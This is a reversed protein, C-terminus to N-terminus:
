NLIQKPIKFLVIGKITNKSITGISRSDTSKPGTGICFYDSNGIKQISKFMTKQNKSNYCIGFVQENTGIGYTRGVIKMRKDYVNFLKQDDCFIKEIKDEPIGAVLKILNIPNDSFDIFEFIVVDNRDINVFLSTFINLNLVIVRSGNNYVGHLSDGKVKFISISTITFLAIALFSFNLILKRTKSRSM